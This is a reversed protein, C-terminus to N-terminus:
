FEVGKNTLKALWGNPGDYMRILNIVHNLDSIGKEKAYRIKDRVYVQFAVTSWMEEPSPYTRGNSVVKARLGTLASKPLKKKNFQIELLSELETKQPLEQEVPVSVRFRLDPRSTYKKTKTNISALQGLSMLVSELVHPELVFWERRDDIRKDDFLEHMKTEVARMNNVEVLRVVRIGIFPYYQKELAKIRQNVDSSLGIKYLNSDVTAWTTSTGQIM